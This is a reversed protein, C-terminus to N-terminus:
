KLGKNPLLSNMEDDYKMVGAMKFNSSTWDSKNNASTVSSLVGVQVTKSASDDNLKNVCVVPQTMRDWSESLAQPSVTRTKLSSLVRM